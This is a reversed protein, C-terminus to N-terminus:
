VVPCYSKNIFTKAFLYLLVAFSISMIINLFLSNDIYKRYKENDKAGISYAVGVESGIKSVLVLSNAFWMIFAVIGISAIAETGLKGVWFTDMLTYSMQIFSTIMIPFSLRLINSYIKDDLLNIKKM